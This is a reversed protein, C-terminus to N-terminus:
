DKRKKLLEQKKENLRKQWVSPLQKALYADIMSIDQNEMSLATNLGDYDEKSLMIIETPYFLVQMPEKDGVAFNGKYEAHADIIFSQKSSGTENGSDEQGYYGSWTFDMMVLYCKDSRNSVEYFLKYGFIDEEKGDTINEGIKGYKFFYRVDLQHQQLFKQAIPYPKVIDPYDRALKLLRYYTEEDPNINEPRFTKLFTKFKEPERDPLYYRYFFKDDTAFICRGVAALKQGNMEIKEIFSLTKLDYIWLGADRKLVLILIDGSQQKLINEDTIVADEVASEMKLKRSKQTILDRIVLEQFKHEILYHKYFSVVSNSLTKPYTRIPIESNPTWVFVTKDGAGILKDESFGIATICEKQNFVEWNINEKSSTSYIKSFILNDYRYANIKGGCSGIYLANDGVAMSSIYHGDRLKVSRVTDAKTDWLVATDVDKDSGGSIITTGFATRVGGEYQAYDKNKARKTLETTDPTMVYVNGGPSASNEFVWAQRNVIYPRSYYQSPLQHQIADGANAKLIREIEEWMRFRIYTNFPVDYLSLIGKSIANRIKDRKQGPEAYGNIASLFILLVPLIRKLM